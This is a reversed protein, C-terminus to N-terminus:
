TAVAVRSPACRQVDGFWEDDRDRHEEHARDCRTEHIAEPRRRQEDEEAQADQEALVARAADVEVVRRKRAVRARDREHDDEDLAAEQGLARLHALREPRGAQQRREAHEHRGPDHREGRVGDDIELQVADSSSPAATEEVSAAATKADSRPVSTRRRREDIRSASLPSLSGNAASSTIPRTRTSCSSGSRSRRRGPAARRAPRSRRQGAPERHAHDADPQQAAQRQGGCAERGHDRDGHRERAGDADRRQVAGPQEGGVEDAEDDAIRPDRVRGDHAAEQLARRPEGLEAEEHQEAQEHRRRAHEVLPGRRDEDGDGEHEDRPGDGDEEARRDEAERQALLAEEGPGAQASAHRDHERGERDGRAHGAALAHEVGDEEDDHQGDRRLAQRHAPRRALEVQDLLVGHRPEGDSSEAVSEVSCESSTSSRASLRPRRVPVSTRSASSGPAAIM